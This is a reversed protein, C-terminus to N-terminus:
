RSRLEASFEKGLREVIRDIAANIEESSLTRDAARFVMSVAISRQDPAIGKGAFVDICDVSELQPGAAGRIAEEL